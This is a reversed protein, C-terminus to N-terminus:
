MPCCCDLTIGHESGLRKVVCAQDVEAGALMTQDAERIPEEQGAERSQALLGVEPLQVLSPGAEQPQALLGVEQLQVLRPGAEQPQALLGVEPLELLRRDVEQPLALHLQLDQTYGLALPQSRVPM